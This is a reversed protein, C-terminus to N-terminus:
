KAKIGKEMTIGCQYNFSSRARENSDFEQEIRAIKVRTYRCLNNEAVKRCLHVPVPQLHVPVTQEKGSKQMPTGTCNTRQWKEAYTYRYLNSTYRYLNAVPAKQSPHVPVPEESNTEWSTQVERFKVLRNGDDM